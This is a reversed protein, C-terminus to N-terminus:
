DITIPILFDETIQACLATDDFNFLGLIKRGDDDSNMGEVHPTSGEHKFMIKVALSYRFYFHACVKTLFGSDMIGKMFAFIRTKALEEIWEKM